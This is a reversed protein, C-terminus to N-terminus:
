PLGGTMRAKFETTYGNSDLRHTTETLLYTGSYRVGVGRVAVTKGARLRPTGVTTGSATILDQLRTTLKGLAERDAAAQNEIPDQVSIEETGMLAADIAGLLKKDPLKSEVQNYTASGVLKRDNGKGGPKWGRVVVRTIQGKTRVMPTFSVLSRGWELLYVTGSEKIQGFTLVPQKNRTEMHLDYGLRRARGILFNIPYQRAFAMFEHRHETSEQDAPIEIGVELSSAVEKAIESDTKNEFTMSTQARQLTHMPNLARIRLNPLGNAPFNAAITAIKGTLMETADESGQYGLSLTVEVGPDFLPVNSDGALRRLSGTEDYPSSYLPEKLVADWDHLVFEFFDMDELSDTYTIEKVDRIVSEKLEQGALRIEFRPVHFDQGEFIAETM